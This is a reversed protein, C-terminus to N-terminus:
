IAAYSSPYLAGSELRYDPQLRPENAAPLNCTRIRGGRGAAAGLTCIRRVAAVFNRYRLEGIQTVGDGM